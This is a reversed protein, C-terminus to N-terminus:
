KENGVLKKDIVKEEPRADTKIFDSLFVSLVATAPIALVLGLPGAIKVGILMAIIVAVPNIGVAQKMVLPVVLHNEMQQVFVYMLFVAFAQVPGLSLAVLIGALSSLIPGVYPVVEFAAALLALVLAYPVGLLTLGIYVMVGIILNLVMQGLLWHGMKQQIRNMLILVYKRHKGPIFAQLFEGVNKKQISSYFSLSLIAIFSLIGSIFSGAQSFLGLWGENLKNSLNILIQSKETQGLGRNGLFTQLKEQLNHFSDSYKPLNNGLQGLQEGVAPVMLSLLYGTGGIFFAYIVLTVLSRPLRFKELYDVLPAIASVIIFSVFIMILVDSIYYLFFVLLVILITRFITNSDISITIKSDPIHM